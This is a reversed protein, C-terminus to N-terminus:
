SLEIGDLLSIMEDHLQRPSIRGACRECHTRLIPYKAQAAPSMDVESGLLYRVLYGPFQGERLLRVGTHDVGVIPFSGRVQAKDDPDGLFLPISYSDCFAAGEEQEVIEPQGSINMSTAAPLRVGQARMEDLLLRIGDNASPIYNQLWYKGDPTRSLVSSPLSAAADQRIPVRIFGLSGFRAELEAPDLLVDRLGPPVEAPDILPVFDSAPLITSMPRGVRREGKIRYITKIADPDAADVWIACVARVFSGVPYGAKILRVAERSDEINNISGTYTRSVSREQLVM